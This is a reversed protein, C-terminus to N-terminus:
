SSLFLSSPSFPSLSLSLYISLSLSLSLSLAFSLSLCLSLCQSVSVSLSVSLSSSFSSRPDHMQPNTPGCRNASLYFSLSSPACHASDCSSAPATLGEDRRRNVVLRSNRSIIQSLQRVQDFWSLAKKSLYTTCPTPLLFTTWSYYSM